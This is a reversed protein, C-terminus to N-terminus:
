IGYRKEIELCMERLVADVEGDFVVRRYKASIVLSVDVGICQPEKQFHEIM